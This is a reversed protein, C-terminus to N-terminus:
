ICYLNQAVYKKGHTYDAIIVSTYVEDIFAQPKYCMGKCIQKVHFVDKDLEECRCLCLPQVHSVLYLSGCKLTM